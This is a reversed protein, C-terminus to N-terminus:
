LGIFEYAFASRYVNGNGRCPRPAAFNREVRLPAVEFEVRYGVAVLNYRVLYYLNNGGFVFTGYYLADLRFRRFVRGYAARFLSLRM